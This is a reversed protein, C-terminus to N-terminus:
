GGRARRDLGLVRRCIGCTVLKRREAQSAAAILTRAGGLYAAVIPKGCVTSGPTVWSRLHRKRAKMNAEMGPKGAPMTQQTLPGAPHIEAGM